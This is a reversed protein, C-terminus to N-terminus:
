SLGNIVLFQMRTAVAALELRTIMALELEPEQAASYTKM